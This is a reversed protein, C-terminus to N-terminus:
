SVLWVTFLTTALGALGMFFVHLQPGMLGPGSAAVPPPMDTRLPAARPPPAPRRGLDVAAAMDDTTPHFIEARGPEVAAPAPTPDAPRGAQGPPPRHTEGEEDFWNEWVRGTKAGTAALENLATQAVIRPPLSLDHAQRQVFRDLEPVLMRVRQWEADPIELMVVPSATPRPRAAAMAPQTVAAMVPDLGAGELRSRALLTWGPFPLRAPPPVKM